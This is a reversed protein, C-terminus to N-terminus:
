CPERCDYMFVCHPGNIWNMEDNIECLMNTCTIYILRQLARKMLQHRPNPLQILVITHYEIICTHAVACLIMIIHMSSVCVSMHEEVKYMFIIFFLLLARKSHRHNTSNDIKGNSGRENSFWVISFPWVSNPRHFIKLKDYKTISLYWRCHSFELPFWNPHTRSAALVWKVTIRKRIFCISFVRTVSKFSFTFM